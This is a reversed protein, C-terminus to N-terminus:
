ALDGVYVQASNRFFFKGSLQTRQEALNSIKQYFSCISSLIDVNAAFKGGHGLGFAGTVRCRSPRLIEKDKVAGIQVQQTSSLRLSVTSLSELGYIRPQNADPPIAPHSDFAKLAVLFTGQNLPNM